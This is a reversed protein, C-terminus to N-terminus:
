DWDFVSSYFEKARSRDDVPIEFHVVKDM